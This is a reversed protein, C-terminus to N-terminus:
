EAGLIRTLTAADGMNKLVYKRYPWQCKIAAKQAIICFVDRDGMERLQQSDCLFGPVNMVLVHPPISLMHQIADEAHPIDVGVEIQDIIWQWSTHLYRVPDEMTVIWDNKNKNYALEQVLAALLAARLLENDEDVILLTGKNNEALLDRVDELGKGHILSELTQIQSTSRLLRLSLSGRQFHGYLRYRGIGRISLATTFWERKKVCEEIRQKDASVGLLHTLIRSIGIPDLIAGNSQLIRLQDGYRFLMPAHSSIIVGDCDEGAEKLSTFIEEPTYKTETPM